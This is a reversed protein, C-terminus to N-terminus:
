RSVFYTHMSEMLVVIRKLLDKDADNYPSAKTVTNISIIAHPNELLQAPLIGLVDAIEEIRQLILETINNEIHSLAPPTINLMRALEQQKLGKIDRWKRVNEGIKMKYDAKPKLYKKM